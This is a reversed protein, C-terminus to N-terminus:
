GGSDGAVGESPWPIEIWSMPPAAHGITGGVAAGTILGAVAGLVAGIARHGAGPKAVAGGLVAGALMGIPAGALASIATSSTRNSRIGVYLTRVEARALRVDGQRTRAIFISDDTIGDFAGEVPRASPLSLEVRIPAGLSLSQAAAARAAILLMLGPLSRRIRMAIPNSSPQKVPLFRM